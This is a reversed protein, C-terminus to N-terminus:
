KNDIVVYCDDFKTCGTSVIKNQKIKTQYKELNDKKFFLVYEKYKFSKNPVDDVFLIKQNDDSYITFSAITHQYDRFVIPIMSSNKFVFNNHDHVYFLFPRITDFNNFKINPFLIGCFYILCLIIAYKFDFKMIFYLIILSLVPVAPLFYRIDFYPALLLVIISWLLSNTSILLVLNNEYNKSKIFFVLFLGYFLVISYFMTKQMIDFCTYLNKEFLSFSTFSVFLSDSYQTPTLNVYHIDVIFTLITSLVIISFLKFFLEKNFKMNKYIVFILSVLLLFAYILSSYGTLFFFSIAISYLVINKKNFIDSNKKNTIYIYIQAFIYTVILYGLGQLQYERFLLTNSVAATSIFALFLGIYIYKKDEVCLQLLKFMIFFSIIFIMLNFTFGYIILASVSIDSLNFTWIRLLMYYLNPHDEVYDNIYLNKLDSKLSKFDGGNKFLLNKLESASYEYNNKFNFNQWSNKFLIGDQINSPSAVVFSAPDDVFLYDKQCVWFIRVSLTIIFILFIPWYNKINEM